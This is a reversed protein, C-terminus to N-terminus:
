ATYRRGVYIAIGRCADAVIRQRAKTFFNKRKADAYLVAAVGSNDPLPVAIFSMVTRDLLAAEEKSFHWQTELARLYADPDDNPRSARCLQQTRYADGVIGCHVSLRRNKKRRPRAGNSTVYDCLQKLYNEGKVPVHLTIRIGPDPEGDRVSYMLVGMLTHLCGELAHTDRKQIKDLLALLAKILGATLVLGSPVNVRALLGKIGQDWYLGRVALWFAGGVLVTEAIFAWSDRDRYWRESRLISM